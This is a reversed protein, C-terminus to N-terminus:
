RPHSERGPFHVTVISEIMEPPVAVELGAAAVAPSVAARVTVGCFPQSGTPRVAEMASLAVTSVAAEM